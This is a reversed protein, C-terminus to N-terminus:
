FRQGIKFGFQSQFIHNYEFAVFNNGSWEYTSGIIWETSNAEENTTILSDTIGSTGGIFMGISRIYGVGAYINFIDFEMQTTVAIGWNKSHFQSSFSTNQGHLWVAFSRGPFNEVQFTKHVSAAFLSVSSEQPLPTLSLNFDIDYYMGKSFNLTYFSINKKLKNDVGVDQITSSNINEFGLSFEYGPYGGLPKSFHNFKQNSGFGLVQVIKKRDPSNLGTPFQIKAISNIPTFILAIFSFVFYNIIKM